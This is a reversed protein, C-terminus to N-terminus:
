CWLIEQKIRTIEECCLQHNSMDRESDDALEEGDHLEFNEDTIISLMAKTFPKMNKQVETEEDQDEETNENTDKIEENTEDVKDSTIELEPEGEESKEVTKEKKPKKEKKVEKYKVWKFCSLAQIGFILAKFFKIM